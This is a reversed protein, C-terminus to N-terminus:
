KIGEACVWTTNEKTHIIVNSFGANKMLTEFTNLSPNYLNYKKINERQRDNLDECDYIDAVLLFKGGDKLVRRVEKLNEQPNPWFYFSEVTIIKDFSDNDFPLNEVSAEIIEMKGAAIIEANTESSMEVSVKSYDVGTLHGSIINAAMRNLTRGGGCGIDLVNDDEKFSFFSLAWTTVDFHDDNMRSLMMKGEAGQPKAPNGLDTINIAEQNKNISDLNNNNLEHM